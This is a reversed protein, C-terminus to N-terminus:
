LEKRAHMDSAKMKQVFEMGCAVMREFYVKGIEATSAFPDGLSGQVSMDELNTYICAEIGNIKTKGIGTMEFQEWQRVIDPASALEEHVCDGHLFRMVADVQGGGHGVVSAKDGYLEKKQTAPMCRWINLRGLILNDKRRIERGVWELISDNGAHGNLFLIKTIGHEILSTCMDMVWNYLTTPQVSITGPYSRFYESNGFLVVPTCYAGSRKCIEAAVEEAAIYDGTISHPGQVEMSGLPIIVVPDTQFAKDVEKWSMFQLKNSENAM